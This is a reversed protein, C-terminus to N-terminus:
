SLAPIAGSHTVPIGFQALMAPTICNAQTQSGGIPCNFAGQSFLTQFVNQSSRVGGAAVFPVFVQDILRTCTISVGCQTLMSEPVNRKNADLVGLSRAVGDIQGYTSAYFVGYGGRVVTKHDKFPDWAFSVRPAFNDKDTNIQYRQDLEYRLGYSLTLNSKIKWSDQWYGAIHPLVGSPYVNGDFGQQYFQPAGLSFSQLSNIVAGLTFAPLFIGGGLTAFGPIDFGPGAPDNSLVSFNNYNGQLHLENLTKASFQHFWSGQLTIDYARITSGRSFGTLAQVDPDQAVDHGTTFRLFAQDHDSFQHDLRASGLYERENFPFLGGNAELQNIVFKNLATNIPQLGTTPSVTLANQLIGACTAAPVMPQGNLCPVPAGGRAALASLLANQQSTPNFISADTLL